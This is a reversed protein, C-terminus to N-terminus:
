IIIDALANAAIVAAEKAEALTNGTAGIEILLSGPTYQQNFTAGRLNIPRTITPCREEMQNQWQLALSLNSEWCPHNGGRANTGVVLMIQATPTGSSSAIVPRLITGDQRELADRHLDIIYRISPYRELYSQITEAAYSYAYIYSEADHMITCHLANIGQDNLAQTFCQGVAVVNQATDETRFGYQEPYSTLGDLAYSETGHTHLVLVLPQRATDTNMFTAATEQRSSKKLMTQLDPTYDTENSLAFPDDNHLTLPLINSGEVRIYLDSSATIGSKRTNTDAMLLGLPYEDSASMGNPIDTSISEQPTTFTKENPMQHIRCSAACVVLAYLALLLKFAQSIKNMQEM